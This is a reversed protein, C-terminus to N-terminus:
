LFYQFFLLPIVSIWFVHFSKMQEITHRGTHRDVFSGVIWPWRHRGCGNAVAAIRQFFHVPRLRSQDDWQDNQADDVDEDQEAVTEDYQGNKEIGFQACDGIQKDNRQGHGVQRHTQGNQREAGRQFHQVHPNETLNPAGNPQGDVDPHTRRRDQIQAGDTEIAVQGDSTGNGIWGNHRWKSRFDKQGDNPEQTEDNTEWRQDAPVVAFDISMWWLLVAVIPRAFQGVIRSVDNVRGESTEENGHEDHEEEVPANISRGNLCSFGDILSEASGLYFMKYLYSCVAYLLSYIYKM